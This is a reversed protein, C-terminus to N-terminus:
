TKPYVSSTRSIDSPAMDFRGSGMDLLWVYFVIPSDGSPLFCKMIKM